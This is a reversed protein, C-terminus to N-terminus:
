NSKHYEKLKKLDDIWYDAIIKRKDSEIIEANVGFIEKIIKKNVIKNVVDYYCIQGNNMVVIKDSFKMAHNIDHIVLIITKNHNHNLDHLLHTIELQYRIDLHNTPEDLIIISTDQALSLAILARQKQGGSLEGLYKDKFETLNVLELAKDIAEKNDKNNFNVFNSYPYRGMKVFDYVTIETPFEVIQPVYSVMKAYEKPNYSYLDKGRFFIKGNTKSLQDKQNLTHEYKKLKNQSFFKNIYGSRLVYSMYREKFTRKYDLIKSLSKILTTKGCGNPGIVSIFDGENITLNVNKIIPKNKQYELTLNEIEFINEM